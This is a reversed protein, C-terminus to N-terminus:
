RCCDRDCCPAPEKHWEDWPIWVDYRRGRKAEMAEIRAVQASINIRSRETGGNERIQRDINEARPVTRAPPKPM